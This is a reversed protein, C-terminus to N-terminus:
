GRKNEVFSDLGEIHSINNKLLIDRFKNDLRVKRKSLESKLCLYMKKGKKDFDTLICIKTKGAVQEIEEIKEYISKGAENIIFINSFGLIELARKDKKGEVIIFYEKYKGISKELDLKNMLISGSPNSGEVGPNRQKIPM